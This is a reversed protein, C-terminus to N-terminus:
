QREYTHVSGSKFGIPFVKRPNEGEQVWGTLVNNRREVTLSMIENNPFVAPM